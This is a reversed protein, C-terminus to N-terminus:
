RRLGAAADRYNTGVPYQKNRDIPALAFVAQLNYRRGPSPRQRNYTIFQTVAEGGRSHGM